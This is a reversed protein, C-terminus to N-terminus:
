RGIGFRERLAASFEPMVNGADPASPLGGGPAGGGAPLGRIADRNPQQPPQGGNPAPAAPLKYGRAQAYQYAVEAPNRGQALLAHANRLEEVRLYNLLEADSAQPAMIRLEGLRQQRIHLLAQPYDPHQQVFANEHAQVAQVVQTVANQAAVQQATQKSQEEVQKLSALGRRVQQDIYGKPDDLYDIDPEQRAAEQAPTAPQQPQVSELRDLRARDREREAEQRKQREAALESVPVYGAPVQPPEPAPTPAAAAPPASDAPPQFPEDEDFDAAAEGGEDLDDLLESGLVDDANREPNPANDPAPTPQVPEPM